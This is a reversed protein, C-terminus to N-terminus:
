GKYVKNRRNSLLLSVSKAYNVSETVSAIDYIVAAESLIAFIQYPDEFLIVYSLFLRSNRSPHKCMRVSVMIICHKLYRICIGVSYSNLIKHYVCSRLSIFVLLVFAIKALAKNGIRERLKLACFKYLGM